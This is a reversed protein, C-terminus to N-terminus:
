GGDGANAANANGANNATNSDGNSPLPSEISDLQEKLMSGDSPQTVGQGKSMPLSINPADPASEGVPKGENDYYYMPVDGVVLLYSIPIETEVIQPDTEFPVIIAVESVIHIYVEILIMNIGANTQRTNLDVKVAGVPEFKVPIRPGYTSILASGLANGVPIHEPIEKLEDLTAQVTKITESRIKTHEAYNLMFGSVKGDSNMKWDILKEFDANSVVENTTAKNIAQTAVQKIRLQAVKMLPPRLHKEIYVLSQLTGILLILVTVIIWLKTCRKGSKLRTGGGGSGVSSISMTKIGRGPPRVPRKRPQWMGGWNGAPKPKRASRWKSTGWPKPASGSASVKSGWSVRKVRAFPRNSWLQQRSLGLSRLMWGRRGWKTM